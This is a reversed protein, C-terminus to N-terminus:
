RRTEMEDPVVTARYLHWTAHGLVPMVIALGAFLPLSGLVLGIAVVLGWVAIPGPNATTVRWSTEIATVVGSDRDLMMPFAVLTLALVVAAFVFGLANGVLMMLWGRQTTLVEGLFAFLGDFRLGDFAWRYTIEAAALWALLFLILGLGLVLIGPMAPSHRVELADRWTPDQGREFRRSIEYLGLAAFPGILAFGSILPFVLQPAAAGSSWRALVVGVSPYIIAIFIVHSPKRRFDEVGRMLIDYIDGIEIRRVAPRHEGISGAGAFVHFDTM